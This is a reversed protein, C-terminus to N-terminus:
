PSLPRPLSVNLSLPTNSLVLTRGAFSCGGGLAGTRRLTFEGGTPAVTTGLELEPAKPLIVM